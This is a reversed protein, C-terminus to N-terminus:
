DSDIFYVSILRQRGEIVEYYSKAIMHCINIKPIQNLSFFSHSVFFKNKWPSKVPPNVGVFCDIICMVWRQVPLYMNKSVYPMADYYSGERNRFYETEGKNVAPSINKMWDPLTM